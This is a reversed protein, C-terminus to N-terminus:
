WTAWPASSTMVSSRVRDAPQRDPRLPTQLPLIARIRAMRRDPPRPPRGLRPERRAPHRPHRNLPHRYSQRRQHRLLLPRRLRRGPRPPQAAHLAPRGHARRHGNVYPTDYPVDNYISKGAPQRSYNSAAWRLQDSDVTPDVIYALLEPPLNAPLNGRRIQELFYAFIEGPRPSRTTVGNVSRTLRGPNDHVLAIAIALPEAADLDHGYRGSLDKLIIAARELNDHQADATLLLNEVLRPHEQRLGALIKRTRDSAERLRLETAYPRLSFHAPLSDAAVTLVDVAHSAVGVAPQLAVLAAIM